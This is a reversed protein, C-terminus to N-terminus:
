PAIPSGGRSPGAKNPDFNQLSQAFKGLAGDAGKAATALAEMSKQAPSKAAEIAEEQRKKRAALEDDSSKNYGSQDIGWSAVGSWPNVGTDMMSSWSKKKKNEAIEREAQSQRTNWGAYELEMQSNHLHADRWGMGVNGISKGLRAAFSDQGGIDLTSLPNLIGASWEGKNNLFPNLNDVYNNGTNYGSAKSAKDLENLALATSAVGAAVWGGAALAGGGAAGAVGPIPAATIMSTIVKGIGAKAVDAAVQAAIIAGIGKVPNDSFWKVFDAFAKVGKVVMPIAKALEPIVKTIAPILEAGVKQDFEEKLKAIRRDTQDRRFTAGETREQDTVDAGFFRAQEAKVAALGKAISAKDTKGGSAERFMKAQTEIARMGRVNFLDTLKTIDGGTAGLSDLVIQDMARLDGREDFVNVGRKKFKAQNKIIDDTFRAASTAAEQPSTAGGRIAINMTAMADLMNRVPDGGQRGAVAAVTGGMSAMDAMSIQGRAAMAAAGSLARKIGAQIQSEDKVGSDSMAQRVLGAFEGYDGLDGGKADKLEAMFGLLQEGGRLDGSKEQYRTLGSIIEERGIGSKLALTNARGMVDAQIQARSRKDNASAGYHIGALEAAKASASMQSTAAGYMLAGGGLGTVGALLGMTRGTAGMISGTARQAIGERARVAAAHQRKLDREERRRAREEEKAANQIARRKAREEQQINRLVLRHRDMEAKAAVKGIEDFGRFTKKLEASRNVAAPARGGRRIVGTGGMKGELRRVHANLEQEVARVGAKLKGLGTVSLDYSLDAM